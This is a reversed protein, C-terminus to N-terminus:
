CMMFTQRYLMTEVQSISFRKSTTDAGGLNASFLNNRFGFKRPYGIEMLDVNM